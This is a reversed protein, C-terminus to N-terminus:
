IVEENNRRARRRALKNIATLARRDPDAVGRMGHEAAEAGSEFLPVPSKYGWTAPDVPNMRLALLNDSGHTGVWGSCLCGNQQHCMFLGGAENQIQDVLSGDYRPLRAYEDPHWVGAPVDRRYPCTGCPSRAPGPIDEAM